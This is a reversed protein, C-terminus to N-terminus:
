VPLNDAAPAALGEFPTEDMKERERRLGQRIFDVALEDTSLKRAQSLETLEKVEALSMANETSIKFTIM